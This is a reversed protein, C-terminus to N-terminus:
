GGGSTCLCTAPIVYGDGESFSEILGRVQERTAELEDPDLGVIVQALPGALDTIGTWYDEFDAYRYEFEVEDVRPEPFGAGTVLGRIRDPEALAFMGPAGPEPPAVHGRAALTAGAAAAWFNKQPPAWTAFSLRGDDRLVRRTEAFAQAPDAPFMYGWRCLVVDTTDDALDMAEMDVVKYSANAIGEAAGTREAAALMAPSLDTTILRGESGVAKAALFGTDGTGAALELVTEGPKPDADEVLKRAIVGTIDLLWPRRKEWGGSVSEWADLNAERYRDQDM